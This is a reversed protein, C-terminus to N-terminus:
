RQSRKAPYATILRPVEGGADIAWVTRVFPREGSPTELEGEVIYHDGHPTSLVSAVTHAAAHALLAQAFVEWEAVSFGLRTFFAAKHRGDEHTESLLYAVIKAEADVAREYNPLKVSDSTVPLFSRLKSALGRYGPGTVGALM